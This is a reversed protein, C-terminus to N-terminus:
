GREHKTRAIIHDQMERELLVFQQSFGSVRVCLSRYREPDGQAERLTEGSVVNIQLQGVGQDIATVLMDVFAEHGERGQVPSVSYAM